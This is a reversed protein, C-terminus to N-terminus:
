RAHGSLRGGSVDMTLLFGWFASLFLFYTNARLPVILALAPRTTSLTVTYVNGTAGLVFDSESRHLLRLRHRLARLIRDAVPQTINFQSQPPRDPPSSSSAVSDM